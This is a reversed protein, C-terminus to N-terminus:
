GGGYQPWGLAISEIRSSAHFRFARFTHVAVVVVVVVVVVVRPVRDTGRRVDSSLGHGRGGARGDTRGDTRRERRAREVCGVAFLTPVERFRSLPRWLNTETSRM